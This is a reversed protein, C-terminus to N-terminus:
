ATAGLLSGQRLREVAARCFAENQEIGIARRGLRKAAALTTGSGAFMDLITEGPDTFLSVLQCMLEDPKQTPHARQKSRGRDQVVPVTWVAHTGGGNWRKKGRRHAIVIAEFGAAPRDGTFQPTAGEKVWAGTRCYDLGADEFDQRWHWVSEVDSFALSWRRVQSACHQAVHSRLGPTLAAFGLDVPASVAGDDRRKGSRSKTHVHESYPPDFIAHDVAGIEALVRMADGCFLTVSADQYYPTM